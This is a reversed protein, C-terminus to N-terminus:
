IRKVSLIDKKATLRKELRLYQEMEKIEISIKINALKEGNEHYTQSGFNVINIKAESIMGIIEVLIGVRDVVKVNFTLKYSNSKKWSIDEDWKVEIIREKDKESLELFNKCDKRHVAIGKGRTIYGGIEDGPMPTCCKAFRIVTNDVGDVHIGYDNKKKEKKRDENQTRIESVKAVHETTNEEKKIKSIIQLISINGMGIQFLLEDYTPFNHKKMFDQIEQMTELDKTKDIYQSLEKEIIMRGEKSKEEFEKEKFWKRIKNKASSTFAIKLWDKGPGKSTKSTIIEISDGSSLKYDIPVIKGNVKAGVCKYGLETHIHFAYDLPTSGAKLEIVEGKPTFVFVEENLIDETVTEVFERSSDAEHQWELIKKLWSYINDAKQTRIKEKYKWHAAIGDEAIKHMDHTRIQIEVFKGDIGIVTTHISQYGNSKPLSIYDKFRGPVPKFINHVIGLVSYCEAETDVLCRVAILDYIEDFSKGKEYMKQYISYFHKARGTVEANIEEKQFEERMLKMINETYEERQVRKSSVKEVLVRYKEPELYYLALDELEWKIRAMGLRNALPAYIKLTETAIDKQKEQKMHKLTRMNHLRDALKIIVVRVDKAMSVIMKRVNELQKESGDPIKKLKTVGEVLNAVEEGFNYKIDAITILTDEVVDHLIGAIITATDMKMEGLIRAVEVPHIIYEEGSKRFQGKHSEKAFEYAMEITAFDVNLNNKKIEHFLDWGYGM